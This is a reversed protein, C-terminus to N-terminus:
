QLYHNYLDVAVSFTCDGFYQRTRAAYYKWKVTFPVNENVRMNQKEPPGM